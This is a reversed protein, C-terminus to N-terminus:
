EHQEIQHPDRSRQIEPDPAHALNAAPLPARVIADLDASALARCESAAAATADGEGRWLGGVMAPSEGASNRVLSASIEAVETM